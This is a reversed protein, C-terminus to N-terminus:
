PYGRCSTRTIGLPWHSGLAQKVSAFEDHLRTAMELAPDYDPETM